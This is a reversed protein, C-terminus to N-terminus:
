EKGTRAMSTDIPAHLSDVGFATGILRVAAVPCLTTSVGAGDVGAVDFESVECVMTGASAPDFVDAGTRAGTVARGRCMSNPPTSKV